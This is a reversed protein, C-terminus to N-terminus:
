KEGTASAGSTSVPGSICIRLTMVSKSTSAPVNKSPSGAVAERASYLFASASNPLGMAAVFLLTQTARTGVRELRAEHEAGDLRPRAAYSGSTMSLVVAAGSRGQARPRSQPALRPRFPSGVNKCTSKKHRGGSKKWANQAVRVDRPIVRRIDPVPGPYPGPTCARYVSPSDGGVEGAARSGLMSPSNRCFSACSTGRTTVQSNRLAKRRRSPLTSCLEM